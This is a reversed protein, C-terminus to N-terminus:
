RKAKDEDVMAKRAAPDTPLPSVVPQGIRHDSIATHGDAKRKAKEAAKYEPALTKPVDHNFAAKQFVTWVGTLAFAALLGAM